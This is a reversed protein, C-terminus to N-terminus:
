RRRRDHLEQHQEVKVLLVVRGLPGAGRGQQGTSSALPGDKDSKFWGGDYFNGVENDFFCHIFLSLV